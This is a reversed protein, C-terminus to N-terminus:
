AFMDEIVYELSVPTVENDRLTSLIENIKVLDDTLNDYKSTEVKVNKNIFETKVISVGYKTNANEDKTITQYYELQIPYEKGEHKLKIDDLCIKDYFSKM